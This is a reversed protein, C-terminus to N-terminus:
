EQNDPPTTSSLTCGKCGPRNEKRALDEIALQRLFSADKAALQRLFSVPVEIPRDAVPCISHYGRFPLREFDGISGRPPASVVVEYDGRSNKSIGLASHVTVRASLQLERKNLFAALDAPNEIFTLIEVSNGHRIRTSPLHYKRFSEVDEEPTLPHLYISVFYLEMINHRLGFIELGFLINNLLHGHINSIPEWTQLFGTPTVIGMHREEGPYHYLLDNM